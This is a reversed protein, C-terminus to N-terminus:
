IHVIGLKKAKKAEATDLFHEAASEVDAWEPFIVNANGMIM